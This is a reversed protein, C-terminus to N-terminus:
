WYTTVVNYSEPSWPSSAWPTDCYYHGWYQVTGAQAGGYTSWWDNFGFPHPGFNQNWAVTRFTAGELTTGAPCYSAYNVVAYYYVGGTSTKFSAPGQYTPAAPTDIWTTAGVSPSWAGVTSEGVAQTRTYLPRGQYTPGWGFSTSTTNAQCGSGWTSNDSSCQVNYSQAGAIAGWSSTFTTSSNVAMNVSPTNIPLATAVTSSWPSTYPGNIAQMRAYYKWGPTAGTWTYTAATIGTYQWGTSWTTGDSSLQIVYSAAHSVANWNAYFSTTSTSNIATFVTTSLGWTAASVVASWVGQSSTANAMVRFYYTTNYALGTASYSLSSVTTNVVNATFGSDTAWQLQYSIANNVPQWTLNIQTFSAPNATVSSQGSTAITTRRRSQISIINGTGEQKYKLTWELCAATTGTGSTCNSSGDGVYGFIDSSSSTVDSCKISNTDGSASQPTLLVKQDLGSLTSTTLTSGAATMASCSPYEGNQDYYKELAEAIITAQSSRANDRTDAQYRGFGMFTITALIGIVAIVVLIEVMTFGGSRRNM